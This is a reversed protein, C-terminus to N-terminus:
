EAAERHLPKDEAGQPRTPSASKRTANGLEDVRAVRWTLATADNALASLDSTTRRVTDALWQQQIQVIGGFDRCEYMRTLSRTSSDIAERQRQMWREWMAEVGSLLECQASAWAEAQRLMVAAADAAPPM